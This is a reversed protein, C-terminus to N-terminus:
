LPTSTYKPYVHVHVSSGVSMDVHDTPSVSTYMYKPYEHVDLKSM